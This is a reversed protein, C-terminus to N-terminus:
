FRTFALLPHREAAKQAVKFTSDGALVGLRALKGARQAGVPEGTDLPHPLADLVFPRGRFRPEDAEQAFTAGVLVQGPADDLDVWHMERAVSKGEKNAEAVAELLQQKDCVYYLKV